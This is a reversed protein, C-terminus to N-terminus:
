VLVIEDEEVERINESADPLSLSLTATPQMKLERGTKSSVPPGVEGVGFDVEVDTGLRSIIDNDMLVEVCGTGCPPVQGLMVCASVGKLNDRDSFTGARVLMDVSEEFSTKALPGIDGRNIGHRNVSLLSGRNTMVDMLLSTHRFNIESSAMVTTLENLLAQRAAEVGLVRHIEVIDNTITRTADVLPHALIETLNTGNTSVAYEDRTVFVDSIPDFVDGGTGAKLHKRVAKVINEVGKIIIADLLAQELARLDTLLDDDSKGQGLDAGSSGDLGAALAAANAAAAVANAKAVAAATPAATVLRVRCVLSEASDDSFVCSIQTDYYDTLAFEVDLMTIQLRLMKMRDFEFRLVWPSENAGQRNGADLGQLERYFSTLGADADILTANGPPDFYVHTSKIVDRFKTTQMESALEDGKVGSKRTSEPLYISMFPTKIEKSVHILERMRAVGSLTTGSAAATAAGSTHFTNLTMQTTPEGISQAAIVGAMEGSSALAEFFSQRVQAVVRDFTVRTLHRRHILPRPSLYFHLLARMSLCAGGPEAGCRLEAMLTAITDLVHVPSLDSPGRPAVACAKMLAEMNELIRQFSVPYIIVAKKDSRGLMLNQIVERRDQLIALYHADMRDMWYGGDGAATRELEKMVEPTVFRELEEPAAWVHDDRIQLPTKNSPPYLQHELRIADMGDEGYLFQVIHGTANRVSLDHHIKCDEMAKILQRQIYGTESTRVATDILGVRGAMSHFFFEQPSLGSIFSHEVFGRSEPGDDYRTFHPLTRHDFADVIRKNDIFQQGLCAVMQTFNTLTGKSGSSIMSLMRNETAVFGARGAKGAEKAGTNTINSIEFELFDKNSQTSKNDFVGTHLEHIKEYVKVKTDHAVKRVNDAADPLKSVLDSVGVSFGSLVLWDCVVKQTNDIFSTVVAPGQDNHISHVLGRSPAKYAKTTLVGETIRSDRVVVRRREQTTDDEEEMDMHVNPPMVTSLLDRGTTPGEAGGIGIVRALDLVPNSCVLNFLQRQSVRVNDQTMRFVGLAIDQVPTVIPRSYRPSLIHLPVAALAAIEHMTQLSQPVHMNMEDGDFDANYSACVCVNLRFTSFNMVRVKHAMMSMKHLSPQRNFLVWDGDRLHREVVDGPELVISAIDANGRLRITRNGQATKRINKAGPYADPGNRVYATMEDINRAHVVEPFTLNMAVKLPVGLEEISINPDPTIVSRASFDVRKGMLNGRIRGDKHKLRDTISRFVRGSSNDKSQLLHSVNNDVITAVHYQLMVLAMDIQEPTGGRDMKLRLKTNFKLIDSLKHTLDDEQRVGSETRVSPRVSPPPVPFVTCIFWEPRVFTPDFGLANAHPDSIRRLIRLTDEASLLLERTPTTPDSPDRWEMKIKMDDTTTIRQPMRAGCGDATDQGCRRISVCLKSVGEWRKQRSVRRSLLRAVDPRETNVLLHACHFCVCRLLKKVTDFFQIYYVPKALEIHGFHGPCFTNKQECTLCVRSHDIVGMHQDFLGHPTPDIGDYAQPSTIEVASRARIEDPSLVTFQVAQVREIPRDYALERYISM